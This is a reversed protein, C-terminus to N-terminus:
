NRFGKRGGTSFVPPRLCVPLRASSLDAAASSRNILVVPIGALDVSFSTELPWGRPETDVQATNKMLSGSKSGSSAERLVTLPLGAM